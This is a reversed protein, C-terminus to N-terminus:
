VQPQGQSAEYLGWFRCKDSCPRGTNLFCSQINKLDMTEEWDKTKACFITSSATLYDHSVFLFLQILKNLAIFFLMNNRERDSCFAFGKLKNTSSFIPMFIYSHVIQNCVFMLDKTQNSGNRWDYLEHLKHWNRSHVIEGLSPYSILEIPRKKSTLSLKNAEILKRVIYFGIFVAKELNVLAREPWRCQKKRAQLNKAIKYLELRWYYSEWIM